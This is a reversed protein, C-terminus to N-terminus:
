RAGGRLREGATVRHRPWFLGMLVFLAAAGAAGFIWLKGALASGSTTGTAALEEFYAGLDAREQESLPKDAYAALMVPFAPAALMASIGAGGGARLALDTLDTALLRGGGARGNAGSSHCSMCPPAGTAFATSGVFLAEGVAPDGARAPGGVAGEGPSATTGTAGGTTTTGTGGAPDPGNDPGTGWTTRLYATLAAVEEDTLQTFAPMVGSGARVLAAVAAEDDLFPNGALAPFSGRGEGQGGHCAACRTAFLAAGDAASATGTPLLWGSAWATAVGVLLLGKKWRASGM